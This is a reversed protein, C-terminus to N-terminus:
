KKELSRIYGVLDKIQEAKLSKAYGPMKGKGSAIVGALDDDSQKQVDASALDRIKNTKGIATEGKGDPGHCAACKTKYLAGGDDDARVSSAGTVLLAVGVFVGLLLMPRNGNMRMMEELQDKFDAAAEATAM